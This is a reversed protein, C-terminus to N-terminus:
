VITLIMDILGLYYSMKCCVNAVHHIWSITSDFILGLYKQKETVQLVVGSVSIPPHTFQTSCNSAKFWMVSSKKFNIEMKSWLIWQSNLACLIKYLLLPPVLVFLLQIMQMSYFYVM